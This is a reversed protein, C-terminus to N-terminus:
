ASNCECLKIWTSNEAFFLIRQQVNLVRIEQMFSLKGIISSSSIKKAQIDEVLCEFDQKDKNEHDIPSVYHGQSPVVGLTIFVLILSLRM